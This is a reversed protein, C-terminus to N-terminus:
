QYTIDLTATANASGPSITSLTQYYRAKFPFTEIGGASTKLVLKSGINLPTNNYM